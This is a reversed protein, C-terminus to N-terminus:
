RYPPGAVWGVLARRKGSLVQTVRHMIFSPFVVITGRMRPAPEQIENIQFELDGGEYDEDESVQISFSLKRASSIGPGFDLHWNFFDGENYEVFQLPEYIGRLDFGYYQQNLKQCVQAIKSFLWANEESPEVPVVTSKRLELNPADEGSVNAVEEDEAAWLAELRDAEPPTFFGPLCVYESFIPNIPLVFPYPKM